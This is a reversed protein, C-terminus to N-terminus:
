RPRITVRANEPMTAKGAYLQRGSPRTIRAAGGAELRRLAEQYNKLTYPGDGSHREFLQRVTVTRGPLQQVIKEKLEDLPSVPSIELQAEDRPRPDYTFSAVGDVQSSSMGAMVDRMIEVGKFGKTVFILYHSTRGNPTLFRFPRVYDSGLERLGKKLARLVARQRRVPRLGPVEDRLESFWAPGFIAEIHRAVKQNSLGMNIRNYNFFFVCDCGWDKLLAQILERSLGRYGWPDIFALTPVLSITRFVEATQECVDVHDVQPRHKLKGIDPLAAIEARLAAAHDRDNFIPVLMERVIPDRIARELVLLPTSPTGDDYRGRGAFLDVYAIREGRTTRSVVTAWASFYKSIIEAKVRSAETSERFFRKNRLAKNTAAELRWVGCGTL